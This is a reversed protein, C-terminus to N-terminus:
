KRFIPPIKQVIDSLSGLQHPFTGFNDRGESAIIEALLDPDDIESILTINNDTVGLVFVRGLVEVVCVSRNNGLPLQLHVRGGQAALRRMAKNGFTRATFYALGVVVAFVLFLSVLYAVTSWLSVTAPRPDTEEYGALYGGNAEVISLSTDALMMLVLVVVVLIPLVVGKIRM